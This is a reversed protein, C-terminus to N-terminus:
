DIRQRYCHLQGTGNVSDEDGVWGAFAQEFGSQVQSGSNVALRLSVARMATRIWELEVDQKQLFSEHAFEGDARAHVGAVECYFEVRLGKALARYDLYKRHRSKRHAWEVFVFGVAFM